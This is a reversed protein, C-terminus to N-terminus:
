KSSEDPKKIVILQPESKIQMVVGHKACLEALEKNFAELEKPTLNNTDMTILTDSKQAKSLSYERGKWPVGGFDYPKDEAWDMDDSDLKVKDLNIALLIKVITKLLKPPIIYTFKAFNKFKTKVGDFHSRSSALLLLRKLERRPYKALRERDMSDMLDQWIFRYHDDFELICLITYKFNLVMRIQWDDIVSTIARNLERVPRCYDRDPIQEWISIMQKYLNMGIRRFIELRIKPILFALVLPTTRILFLFTSLIGKAGSLRSIIIEDAFRGKYPKMGVCNSQLGEYVYTFKQGDYLGYPFPINVINILNVTRIYSPDTM